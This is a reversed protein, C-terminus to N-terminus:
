EGDAKFTKDLIHEFINLLENTAKELMKIDGMSTKGRHVINCRLTYYYKLCKVPDEKNFKNEYLNETNFVSRHYDDAYKILAEKFVEEEALADRNEHEKEKNYRIKCYRDIASWLLMYNMQLKFFGTEWSFDESKLNKRILELGEKFLPDKKGDYTTQEYLSEIYNSGKNHKKGFLVNVEEDKITITNWKYLKNSLTQNIIDYALDNDNFYLIYGRTQPIEIEKPVLIPVGDRHKMSYNIQTENKEVVYDKIRSHAIQGPKFIGYTFFPLDKNNPGKLKTDRRNDVM